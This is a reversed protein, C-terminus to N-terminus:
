NPLNIVQGPYIRSRALNNLSKISKVSTNHRRAIAALTDGRVVKYGGQRKQKATEKKNRQPLYIIQGAILRTRKLQNLDMLTKVNTKYRRAISYLSDGNQIRYAGDPLRGSPLHRSRLKVLALELAPSVKEKPLWLSYSSKGPPIVGKILHPNYTKIIKQSVGSSSAIDFLRVGAAVKVGQLTPMFEDHDKLEAEEISRAVWAAALFKPVYDRTERPLGKARILKWYDRTGKRMIANLVRGEGSSYAAFALFWSQFVRHLDSFYSAAAVASRIPDRREDVYSNVRLGYRKGTGKMFQWMGVASAKSRASNVFGSEILAIYYIDLPLGKDILVAEIMPRYKEGRKIYRILGKRGSGEYYKIWKKVEPEEIWPELKILSEERSTIKSISELERQAESDVFALEGDLHEVPEVEQADYELDKVHQSCGIFFVSVFCLGFIINLNKRM